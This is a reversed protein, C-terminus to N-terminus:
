KSYGLIRMVYFEGAKKLDDPLSEVYQQGVLAADKRTAGKKILQRTLLSSLTAIRRNKLQAGYVYADVSYRASNRTPDTTDTYSDALKRYKDDVDTRDKYFRSKGAETLTGDKNQYRRIGWKMGLVGFHAMYNNYIIDCTNM